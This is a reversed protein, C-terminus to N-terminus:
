PSGALTTAAGATAVAGVLAKRNALLMWVLVPILQPKPATALLLGLPIGTIFRDRNWAVLAIAGLVLVTVNGVELDYLIPLFTVLIIAVLVRDLRALGRTAIAAGVFLIALKGVLWGAVAVESPVLLAPATLIRPSPRTSTARCPGFSGDLAPLPPPWTANPTWGGSPEPIARVFAFAGVVASLM